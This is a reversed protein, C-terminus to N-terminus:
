RPRLDVQSTKVWPISLHNESSYIAVLDVVIGILKWASRNDIKAIPRLIPGRRIWQWEPDDLPKNAGLAGGLVTFMSAFKPPLVSLRAGTEPPRENV